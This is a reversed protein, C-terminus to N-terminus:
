IIYFVSYECWYGKFYLLYLTFQNKTHSLKNSLNQKNIHCRPIFEFIRVIKRRRTSPLKYIVGRKVTGQVLSKASDSFSRVFYLSRSTAEPNQPTSHRYLKLTICINHVVFFTLTLSLHSGPPAILALRVAQITPNQLVKKLKRKGRKLM